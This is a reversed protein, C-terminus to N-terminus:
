SNRDWAADIMLYGGPPAISWVKSLILFCDDVIEAWIGPTDCCYIRYREENRKFSNRTARYTKGLRHNDVIKRKYSM